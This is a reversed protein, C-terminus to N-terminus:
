SNPQDLREMWAGTLALPAFGFKAYLGHADDTSLAIRRLGLPRCHDVIGAILMAGIGRGRVGPDVFVDCLWAFTVGDTVMRAYAIQKKSASDYVGFNRSGEIAADQRSRSRGPAWYSQESISQHVWERDIEAVDGSFRYQADM